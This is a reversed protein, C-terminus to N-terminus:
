RTLFLIGYVEKEAGTLMKYRIKYTYTGQPAETNNFLGDWGKEPNDTRFVREGWRNYVSLSYREPMERFVPKFVRNEPYQSSPMFANPIFLEDNDGTHRFFAVLTRNDVAIFTYERNQTIISDSEKWHVFIYGPNESASIHVQSGHSYIGGGSVMGGAEPEAILDVQYTIRQFKATLIIDSDQFTLVPMNSAPDDLVHIDGEWGLFIYWQAPTAELYVVDHIHYYTQHPYIDIEGAQNYPYTEITLTYDTLQFNAAYTAEFNLGDDDTQPVFHLETGVVDGADNTWNVFHYGPHPTATSGQAEGTAPPLSEDEPDVSGGTTALYNITVDPDEQFNATYSAAFNLGNDDTQ